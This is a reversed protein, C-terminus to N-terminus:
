IIGKEKYDDMIKNDTEQEKTLVPAEDNKGYINALISNDNQPTAINSENSFLLKLATATELKSGNNDLIANLEKQGQDSLGMNSIKDDIDKKEKDANMREYEKKYDIEPEKKEAPTEQKPTEKEPEVKPTEKSEMPEKKEMSIDKKENEM